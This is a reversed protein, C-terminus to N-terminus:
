VIDGHLWSVAQRACGLELAAAKLKSFHQM